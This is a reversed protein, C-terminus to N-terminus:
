RPTTPDYDAWYMFTNRNARWVDNIWEPIPTVQGVIDALTIYEIYKPNTTDPPKNYARSVYELDKILNDTSSEFREYVITYTIEINDTPYQHVYSLIIYKDSLNAPDSIGQDTGSGIMQINQSNISLMNDLNPPRGLNITYFSDDEQWYNIPFETIVPFGSPIGFFTGAFEFFNGSGWILPICQKYEQGDYIFYFDYIEHYIIDGRNPSIGSIWMQRPLIHILRRQIRATRNRKKQEFAIKSYTYDLPIQENFNILEFENVFAKSKKMYSTWLEFLNNLIDLLTDRNDTDEYGQIINNVPADEQDDGSLITGSMYDILKRLENVDGSIKKEVLQTMQVIKEDLIRNKEKYTNAATIQIKFQSHEFGSYELPIYWWRAKRTLYKYDLLAQKLEVPLDKSVLKNDSVYKVLMDTLTTM